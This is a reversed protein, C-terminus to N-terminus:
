STPKSRSISHVAGAFRLTPACRSTPRWGGARCPPSLPPTLSSDLPQQRMATSRTAACACRDQKVPVALEAPAQVIHLAVSTPALGNYLLSEESLYTQQEEFALQDAYRQSVNLDWGATTVRAEPQCKYRVYM